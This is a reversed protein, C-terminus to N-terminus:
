KVYPLENMDSCFLIPLNDTNDIKSTFLSEVQKKRQKEGESTKKSRLHTTVVVFEKGNSIQKLRIAVATLEVKNDKMDTTIIEENGIAEFKIMNYFIACGDNHCNFEDNREIKGIKLAKNRAKRLSPIVRKSIPSDKKEAFFHKFGLQGM